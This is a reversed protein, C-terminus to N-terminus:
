PLSVGALDGAGETGGKLIWFHRRTRHTKIKQAVRGGDNYGDNIGDAYPIDGPGKRRRFFNGVLLLLEAIRGVSV